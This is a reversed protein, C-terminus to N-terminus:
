HHLAVSYGRHAITAAVPEELLRRREGPDVELILRVGSM